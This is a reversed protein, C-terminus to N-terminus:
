ITFALNGLVAGALDPDGTVEVASPDASTRGGILRALDAIDLRLVLTPEEAFEPVVAARGDVAINVTRPTLGTIDFRVRSGTPAGAKKGVLYPLSQTIEDAAFRASVADDPAPLGLTDRVDLEHMWCDFIRIRMFRGYTDPGAPTFSDADFDDQTTADLAATRRNITDGYDAMTAARGQARYHVLWRENMAAIDNRVHPHATVDAEVVPEPNGLLMLETTFVHTVIDGVSWGPLTSPHEWQEDTLSDALRHVSAWVATLAEIAPERPVITRSMTPSM